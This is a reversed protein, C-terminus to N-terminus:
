RLWRVAKVKLGPAKQLYTKVTDRTLIGPQKIRGEKEAHRVIERLKPFRGGGGALTYSNFAVTYFQEPNDPLPTGNRDSVQIVKEQGELDVYLGYVGCATYSRRMAAQEELITILEQRNLDVTAIMNEYPVLKFLDAKTISGKPLGTNSLRGHIVVEAKTSDAIARSLLESTQSGRGPRGRATIPQGLEGIVAAAAKEAPELWPKLAAEAKPCPPTDSEVRQLSSSINTINRSEPEFEVEIVALAEAHAGAQVYWTRNNLRRGPIERHIHGGLILDIDPFRRSIDIIENDGRASRYTLGQHIALIILDLDPLNRIEPMARELMTVASEVQYGQIHRGWHWNDLFGSNAGIVAIRLGGREFVRFAPLTKEQGPITIRLNGNLVMEGAAQILELMRELGFDLEHNGLAWVDYNLHRLMAVAIEGRSHATTLSGQITDGCDILLTNEADAEERAERILTALHLWGGENETDKRFRGHIDTTQLIQLSQGFTILPLCVLFTALLSKIFSSGAPRAAPPPSSIMKNPFKRKNLPASCAISESYARSSAPPGNARPSARGGFARPSARGGSAGPTPPGGGNRGPGPPEMFKMVGSFHLRGSKAFPSILLRVTKM